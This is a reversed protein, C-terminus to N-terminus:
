PTPETIEPLLNLKAQLLSPELIINLDQLWRRQRKVEGRIDGSLSKWAAPQEMQLLQYTRNGRVVESWASSLRQAQTRYRDSIREELRVVASVGSANNYADWLSQTHRLVADLENMLESKHTMLDPQIARIFYEDETPRLIASFNVLQDWYAKTNKAKQVADWRAAVQQYRGIQDAVVEGWAGEKLPMLTAIARESEGRTWAGAAQMYGTVVDSSPLVSVLRKGAYEVFLPTQFIEGRTMRAIDVLQRHEVYGTLANLKDLDAKLLDLGRVRPYRETFDGLAADVAARDGKALAKSVDKKLQAIAKVYVANDDRLTRLSAFVRARMPEFAPEYAAIQDVLQQHRFSEADWEEVLAKITEEDHFLAIPAASGDRSAMYAEIRGVLSLEDLMDRGRKIFRYREKQERVFGAAEDFKDATVLTLWQPVVAKSLATAGWTAAEYDDPKGKLYRDAVAASQSYANEDLLSKIERRNHGFLWSVLAAAIIVGIVGYVGTRVWRDLGSKGVLSAWMQALLMRLKALATSPAKAAPLVATAALDNAGAESDPKQEACFVDLFSTASTVFRTKDSGTLQAEIPRLLTLAMTSKGIEPAMREIAVKYTFRESGFTIKEDNTLPRFREDLKSGNVMTGNASDLDEVGIQDGNRTIVAHRRSIKRLDDPFRAQYHAFVSDVRAVLFPFSEVVIPEIEGVSVPLLMLRIPAAAQEAENQLLVQFKIDSGFALVDDTKIELPDSTVQRANVLTGNLSGLDAVYARGNEQFIRAHRNSLGAVAAAPLAMFTSERRGVAFHTDAIVIPGMGPHSLPKMIIKM